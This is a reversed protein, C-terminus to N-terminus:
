EAAPSPVSACAAAYEAPTIEAVEGSAIAAPLLTAVPEYNCHHALTAFYALGGVQPTQDLPPLVSQQGNSPLQWADNLTSYWITYIAPTAKFCRIVSDGM